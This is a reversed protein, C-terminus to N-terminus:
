LADKGDAIAEVLRNEAWYCDESQRPRQIFGCHGGHKPAWLRIWRGTKIAEDEFMRYPIFPDDQAVLIITQVRINPLVHRAASRAYYDEASEYGGDPATYIDDFERLTRIRSLRSVDFQGPFLRAKRRLRAKLGKLFHHQYLWNRPEELAAVCAGPEINPCVAIVGQLAPLTTRAEGAMKLALSGGMSYGVVWISRLGDKTQLETVVAAFDGSLGSNYLTPTLHESRGCNRQNLRVVNFGARWAKNALGQVYHSESCGELGHILIVTRRSQCDPQWHCYGLLQTDSAVTFQRPDTPIGRLLGTRPWLRPIITMLHPPRLLPHPEFAPRASCQNM